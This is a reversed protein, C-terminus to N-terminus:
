FAVISVNAVHRVQEVLERRHQRSLGMEPVKLRYVQQGGYDNVQGPWLGAIAGELKEALSVATQGVDQSLSGISVASVTLGGSLATLASWTLITSVLM